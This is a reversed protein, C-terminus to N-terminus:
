KLLTIKESRRFSGAEMLVLYVGSATRMGTADIGDWQATHHGPELRRDVLSRVLRGKVDYISVRVREAEPVDFRITISPNFPNPVGPHLVFRGRGPPQGSDDGIGTATGGGVYGGRITYQGGCMEGADSQGAVGRLMYPGGTMTEGSESTSWNIEYPEIAPGAGTALVLLAVAALPIWDKRNMM